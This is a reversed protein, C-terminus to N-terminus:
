YLDNLFIASYKYSMAALMIPIFIFFPRIQIQEVDGPFLFDKLPLFLLFAKM